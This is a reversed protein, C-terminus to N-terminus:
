AKSSMSQSSTAKSSLRASVQEQVILVSEIMELKHLPQKVAEMEGGGYEAQVSLLDQVVELQLRHLQLCSRALRPLHAQHLVIWLPSLRRLRQRLSSKVVVM